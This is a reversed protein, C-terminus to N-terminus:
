PCTKHEVGDEPKTNCLGKGSQELLTALANAAAQFLEKSSNHMLMSLM